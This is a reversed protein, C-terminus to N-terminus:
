QWERRKAYIPDYGESVLLRDRVRWMAMITKVPGPQPEFGKSARHIAEDIDASTIVERTRLERLAAEALDEAASRIADPM